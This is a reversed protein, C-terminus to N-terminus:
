CWTVVNDGPRGYARRRFDSGEAGALKNAGSSQASFFACSLFRLYGGNGFHCANLHTRTIAAVAGKRALPIPTSLLLAATNKM